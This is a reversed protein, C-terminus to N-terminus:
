PAADPTQLQLTTAETCLANDHMNLSNFVCLNHLIAHSSFPYREHEGCIGFRGYVIQKSM